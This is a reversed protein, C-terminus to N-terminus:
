QERSRMFVLVLHDGLVLGQLVGRCLAAGVFTPAAAGSVSLIADLGLTHEMKEALTSDFIRVVVRCDPRARKAALAIGLNAIDDNTVALLAKAGAAGAKRLTEEVKVNGLVVPAMERATPVFEGDERQEIAVVQEGSGHLGQLLRFGINGLGAIIIHGKARAAGRAIVDRLRTRLVLDTVLSIVIALM